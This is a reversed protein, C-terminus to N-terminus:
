RCGTASSGYNIVATSVVKLLGPAIRHVLIDVGFLLATVAAADDQSRDMCFGSTVTPFGDHLIFTTASATIGGDYLTTQALPAKLAPVAVHGAMVAASVWGLHVRELRVTM